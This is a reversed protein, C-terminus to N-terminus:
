NQTAQVSAGGRADGGAQPRKRILASPPKVQVHSALSQHLFQSLKQYGAPTMASQLQAACGLVMTNRQEQMTVLQDPVPPLPAHAAHAAAASARFSQIVVKAAADQVAVSARCTLATDHLIQFDPASLGITTAYYNRTVDGNKGAATQQTATQDQKTINDFLIFYLVRDPPTVPGSQPTTTQALLPSALFLALCPAAIARSSRARIGTV